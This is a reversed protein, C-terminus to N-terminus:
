LVLPYSYGSLHYPVFMLECRECDMCNTPCREEKCKDHDGEWVCDLYGEEIDVSGCHPCHAESMMEKGVPRSEVWREIDPSDFLEGCNECIYM